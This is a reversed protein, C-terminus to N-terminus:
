INGVISCVDESWAKAFEISKAPIFSNLSDQSLIYQYKEFVTAGALKLSNLWTLFSLGYRYGVREADLDVSLDHVNRDQYVTPGTFLVAKDFDRMVREAVYSCFIDDMRGLWPYLCMAPAIGKSFMTNQSNFPSFTNPNILFEKDSKFSVDHPGNAIHCIADVDPAGDWLGAQVWVGKRGNPDVLQKYRDELLQIPFGRHWLKGCNLYEEHYYLVDCVLDASVMDGSVSFGSTLATCDGWYNYPINDDDIFAIIDAGSELALLTGINRRQICNWPTLSVSKFSLKNQDDPSYYKGRELKYDRPTKNDGIVILDWDTFASDFLKIAETPANITTSVIVKKM